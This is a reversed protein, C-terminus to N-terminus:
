SPWDAVASETLAMLEADEEYIEAYLEASERLGREQEEIDQRLKDLASRVAESEDKFGYSKCQELFRIHSEELSFKAQIM